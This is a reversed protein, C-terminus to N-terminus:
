KTEYVAIADKIYGVSDNVRELQEKLEIVSEAKDEPCWYIDLISTLQRNLLAAQTLLNAVTGLLRNDKEIQEM